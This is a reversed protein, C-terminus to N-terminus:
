WVTYGGDVPMVAGTTFSSADSAFYLALGVLEEPVGIRGMPTMAYWKKVSPNEPDAFRHATLATRMYGPAISNVRVGRQAWESALSKTLQIVGMKSANYNCQTQPTNVILASMSSINIISGKGQALMVKGVERSVLFQSTLNIDIVQQWFELPMTEAPASRVIGANNVLVDIQGFQKMVEQVMAIVQDEKTVDTRCFIFRAGENEILERAEKVSDLDLGAVAIDSGAQAFGLAIARGIGREGGTVLSVRGKLSFKDLINM